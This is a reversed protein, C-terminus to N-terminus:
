EVNNEEQKEKIKSKYTYNIKNNDYSCESIEIYEENIIIKNCKIHKNNIDENTIFYKICNDNDCEKNCLLENQDYKNNYNEDYYITNDKTSCYKPLNNENNKMYLEKQLLIYNAYNDIQIKNSEKKIDKVVSKVLIISIFGIIVVILVITIIDILTLGKKM